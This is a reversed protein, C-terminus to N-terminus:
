LCRPEAKESEIVSGQGDRTIIRRICTGEPFLTALHRFRPLGKAARNRIKSVATRHVKQEGTDLIFTVKRVVPPYLTALLATRGSESEGLLVIISTSDTPAQLTGCSTTEDTEVFPVDPDAPAVSVITECIPRSAQHKVGSARMGWLYGNTKGNELPARWRGSYKGEGEAVVPNGIVCIISTMAVVTVWCLTSRRPKLLKALPVM